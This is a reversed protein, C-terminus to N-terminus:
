NGVSHSPEVSRSPVGSPLLSAMVFSVVDRVTRVKALQEESFPIRFEDELALSLEVMDLSDLGVDKTLSMEPTLAEVRRGTRKVVLRVLRELVDQETM